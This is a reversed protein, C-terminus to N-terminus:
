YEPKGFQTGHVDSFEMLDYSATKSMAKQKHKDEGLLAVAPSADGLSFLSMEIDLSRDDLLILMRTPPANLM